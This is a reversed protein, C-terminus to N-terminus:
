GTVVNQQHRAVEQSRTNPRRVTREAPRPRNEHDQDLPAVRGALSLYFEPSDCGRFQFSGHGDSVPRDHQRDVGVGEQNLQSFHGIERSQRLLYVCKYAFLGLALRWDPWGIAISPYRRNELYTRKASRIPREGFRANLSTASFRDIVM